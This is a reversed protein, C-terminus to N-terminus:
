AQALSSELIKIIKFVVEASVQATKKFTMAFMKHAYQSKKSIQLREIKKSLHKLLHKVVTPSM